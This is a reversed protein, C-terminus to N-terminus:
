VNETDEKVLESYLVDLSVEIDGVEYNDIRRNIEEINDSLAKSIKEIKETYRNQKEADLTNLTSIVNQLEDLYIYVTNPIFTLGIPKKEILKILKKLSVVVPQLYAFKQNKVYIGYKQKLDKFYQLKDNYDSSVQNNEVVKKNEEEQLKNQLIHNHKKFLERKFFLDRLWVCCNENTLSYECTRNIYEYDSITEFSYDRSRCNRCKSISKRKAVELSKNLDKELRKVYKQYKILDSTNRQEDNYPKINCIYNDILGMIIDFFIYSVGLIVANFGTFFKFQIVYCMFLCFLCNLFLNILYHKKVDSPSYVKKANNLRELESMNLNLEEM